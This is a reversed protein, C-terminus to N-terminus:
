IACMSQRGAGLDSRLKMVSYTTVRQYRAGSSNSLQSVYVAAMSMHHTAACRRSVPLAEAAV